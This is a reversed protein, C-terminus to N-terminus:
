APVDSSVVRANFRCGLGCAFQHRIQRDADDGGGQEAVVGVGLVPRRCPEILRRWGIGAHDQQGDGFGTM